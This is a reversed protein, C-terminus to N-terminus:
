IKELFKNLAQADYTEDGTLLSSIVSDATMYKLVKIAFEPNRLSFPKDFWVVDKAVNESYMSHKDKSITLLLKGESLNHVFNKFIFNRFQRSNGDTKLLIHGEVSEIDIQSIFSDTLYGNFVTDNNNVATLYIRQLSTDVVPIMLEFERRGFPISGNFNALMRYNKGMYEFTNDDLIIPVLFDTKVSSIKKAQLPVPKIEQKSHVDIVDPVFDYVGDPLNFQVVGEVFLLPENTQSFDNVYVKNVKIQRAVFNDSTDYVEVILKLNALYKDDNKIFFLQNYPLKYVFDFTNLQEGPIIHIESFFPVVKRDPRDPHRGRQQPFVAQALLFLIILFYKKM